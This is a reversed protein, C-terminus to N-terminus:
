HLGKSAFHAEARERVWPVVESAYLDINHRTLDAPLSGFQLLALITGLDLQTVLELLRERVTDVSGVLPYRSLLAKMRDTGPTAAAQGRLDDLFQVLAPADIYGPPMWVKGAGVFGASLTGSFYLLHELAEAQAQEDTEAVYVTTLWGLDEPVFRKGAADIAEHFSLAQRAFSEPPAYYAVGM